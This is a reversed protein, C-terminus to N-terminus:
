GNFANKYIGTVTPYDHADWYLPKNLTNTPLTESVTVTAPPPVDGMRQTLWASFQLCWAQLNSPHERLALFYHLEHHDKNFRYRTNADLVDPHQRLQSALTSLNINHGAIQVVNDLRGQLEFRGDSNLLLQDDLAHHEGFQECSVSAHGSRLSLSWWPLLQYDAQEWYRWALGATETSGYVAIQTSAPYRACLQRAVRPALPATSSIAVFQEPLSVDLDLILQWIDPTAVIVDHEHLQASWSVPLSKLPNLSICPVNLALPVLNGWIFGYIHHQPVTCVVRRCSTLQQAFFDAEVQLKALTHVSLTPSSSSGSSYFGLHSNDKELSRRALECWQAASRRALLLDSLGTRNLGLCAAFRSALTLMDLSSFGLEKYRSLLQSPLAQEDQLLESKGRRRLADSFFDEQWRELAGPQQWWSNGSNTM